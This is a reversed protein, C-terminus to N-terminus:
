RWFQVFSRTKRADPITEVSLAVHVTNHAYFPTIQANLRRLIELPFSIVTSRQWFQALMANQSRRPKHQSRFQRATFNSTDFPTCHATLRRFIELPLSIVTSKRWFQVFLTKRATASTDVSFPAHVISHACFPTIQANLRRLIELPLSIVTSKRRFLVNSLTKRAVPITEVILAAHV